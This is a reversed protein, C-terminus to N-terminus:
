SNHRRRANRVRCAGQEDSVRGRTSAEQEVRRRSKCTQGEQRGRAGCPAGPAGERAASRGCRRMDAEVVRGLGGGGKGADRQVWLGGALTGCGRDGPRRSGAELRRRTTAGQQRLAQQRLAGAGTEAGCARVQRAREELNIKQATCTSGTHLHAAARTPTPIAKRAMLQM